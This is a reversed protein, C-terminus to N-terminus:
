PRSQDGGELALDVFRVVASILKQGALLEYDNHDAGAVLLFRKLRPAAAEYLTRSQSIPVITDQEGAVVLLPCHLQRVRDLSPYRDRLLLGVPLFPYHYKGVDAMSTFPSRVVLAGPPREVAAALAVAAGLSEGFYVIRSPDVDERRELYARAGRADALLGEEAPKGPNGGYGRYDFLLVSFGTKALAAALPARLSRNGANGNFVLVTGQAPGAAPAFWGKLELGDETRFTVESAAPLFRQPSPVHGDPFYILKRQFVWALILILAGGAILFGLVNMVRRMVSPHSGGM